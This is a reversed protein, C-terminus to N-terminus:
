LVPQLVVANRDCQILCEGCGNCLSANVDIRGADGPACAQQPCTEICQKCGRSGHLCAGSFSPRLRTDFTAMPLLADTPCATICQGCGDCSAFEIVLEPYNDKQKILVGMPCADICQQCKDCRSFFEAAPRAGPPLPWPPLADTAPLANRSGTVFARFLGRRSVHRHRMYHEYYRENKDM